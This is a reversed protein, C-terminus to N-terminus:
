PFFQEKQATFCSVFSRFNVSSSKKIESYNLINHLNNLPMFPFPIYQLINPTQTQESLFKWNPYQWFLASLIVPTPWRNSMEHNNMRSVSNSAMNNNQCFHATEMKLNFYIYRLYQSTIKYIKNELFIVFDM